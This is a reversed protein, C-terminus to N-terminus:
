TSVRYLARYRVRYNRIAGFPGLLLEIVPSCQKFNLQFVATWFLLCVPYACRRQRAARHRQARGRPLSVAAGLCAFRCSRGGGTAAPRGDGRSEAVTDSRSDPPSRRFAEPTPAM